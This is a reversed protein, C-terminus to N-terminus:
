TKANNNEMQPIEIYWDPRGKKSGINQQNRAYYLGYVSEALKLYDSVFKSLNHENFKEKAPQAPMVIRTLGMRVFLDHFEEPTHIEYFLSGSRLIRAKEKEQYRSLKGKGVKLEVHCPIPIKRQSDSQMAEDCLEKMKVIMDM